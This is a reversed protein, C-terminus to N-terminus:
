DQGERWRSTQADETPKHEVTATSYIPLQSVNKKVDLHKEATLINKTKWFLKLDTTPWSSCHIKFCFEWFIAFSLLIAM